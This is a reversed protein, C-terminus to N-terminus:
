SLVELACMSARMAAGAEHICVSRFLCYGMSLTLKVASEVLSVSQSNGMAKWNIRDVLFDRGSQNKPIM